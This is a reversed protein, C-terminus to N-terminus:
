PGGGALTLVVRTTDPKLVYQADYCFRNTHWAVPPAKEEPILPKEIIRFQLGAFKRTGFRIPSM